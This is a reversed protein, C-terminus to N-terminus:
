IAVTLIIKGEQLQFDSVKSKILNQSIQLFWSKFFRDSLWSAINPPLSLNGVKLGRTTFALQGDKLYPEITFTINASFPYILLGFMEIQSHSIVTQLNPAFYPNNAAAQEILYTLNRESLEIYVLKNQSDFRLGTGQQLLEAPNQAAVQRTPQPLRYFYNSFVPINFIGTKAVMAAFIVLFILGFILCLLCCFFKTRSKRRVPKVRAAPRDFGLKDTEPRGQSDLDIRAM